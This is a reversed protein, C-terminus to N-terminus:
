PRRATSDAGPPCADPVGYGARFSRPQLLYYWEIRDTFIAVGVLLAIAGNVGQTIQIIRKREIRDALAGGVLSLGLIPLASGASVLGLLAASNTIEYALYGRAVMQMQVSAMMALMGLWLFLFSTIRLSSFTQAWGRSPRGVGRSAVARSARPPRSAAFRSTPRADGGDNSDM